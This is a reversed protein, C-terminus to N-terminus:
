LFCLFDLNQIFVIKSRKNGLALLSRGRCGVLGEGRPLPGPPHLDYAYADEVQSGHRGTTKLRNVGTLM